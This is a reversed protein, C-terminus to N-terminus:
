TPVVSWTEGTFELREDLRLQEPDLYVRMGIRASEIEFVRLIMYVASHDNTYHVDRMQLQDAPTSTPTSLRSVRQYQYKSMYFPTRCPGTTTKVEIYYKPRSNRWGNSDLHGRDVLMATLEGETDEYTIDATERGDWNDMDAYDPHVRVYRRITSQWNARGWQPLAPDLRSLM